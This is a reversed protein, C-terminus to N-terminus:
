DGFWTTLAEVLGESDGTGVWAVHGDPRVLVAAPPPVVGIVPMECAGTCTASVQRVREDWRAPVVCAPTGLNLFLPRADRMLEFVRTPGDATVLDLDPMRMGLLPHCGEEGYRIDLGSVKASYWRRPEDMKMTTAVLGRLATTHEDGRNLATLALTLELLAAGVPHRERHYTDLLADPSIGKVVQALKWGLNVADQLGVNLGQGGVPSHIHAADGALLIRNKRYAEAQRAADTFRSMWTVERIGLDSGYAARLAARLDAETPREGREIRQETVIGRVRPGGDLWGLAYLGRDGYRIGLPPEDAIDAEFILYSAQPESGPFGISATKRVLSRGGDCGALYSSGLRRGDTLQVEVHEGTEVFSAMECGRYLTVALESIWDALGREIKEQWLGLTYNHRTPRDRAELVMGALAVAYHKNGLPLFRDAIGRQDLLEIARPHLGSARSGEVDQNPRREVIAVDVGALALEGALMLGTPGGGVIIVDHETM